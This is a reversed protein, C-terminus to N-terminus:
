CLFRKECRCFSGFTRKNFILLCIVISTTLIFLSNIIHTIDELLRNLENYSKCSLKMGESKLVDYKHKPRDESDTVCIGEIDNEIM